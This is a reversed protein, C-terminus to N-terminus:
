VKQYTGSINSILLGNKKLKNLRRDITASSFLHTGLDIAEQRSFERNTPLIKFFEMYQAMILDKESKQGLHFVSTGHQIFTEMLHYVVRIDENSCYIPSSPIGNEYHRLTTMIMILRYAILGFRTVMSNFFLNYEKVLNDTKSEFYKRFLHWQTETLRVEYENLELFQYIALIQPGLKDFSTLNYSQNFPSVNKFRPLSEFFYFLFRSQLGNIPDDLKMASVQDLTGSILLALKPNKIDIHVEDDIRSATIPEHHFGKRLIDSYNGWDNKLTASLSDAETEFIIAEGNSNQLLKMFAASSSNAPIVFRRQVPKTPVKVTDDSKALDSLLKYNNFQNKFKDSYYEQISEIYKMSDLLVGKGSAPPAIVMAYIPCFVKKRDYVSYVNPLSGSILVLAGLLFMDRERKVTFQNCGEQLLKPLLDFAKDPILPTDMKCEIMEKRQQMQMSNLLPAYKNNSKM